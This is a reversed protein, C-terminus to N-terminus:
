VEPDIDLTLIRPERTSSTMSSIVMEEKTASSLSNLLIEHISPLMTTTRLSLVHSATSKEAFPKTTATTIGLSSSDKVNPASSSIQM